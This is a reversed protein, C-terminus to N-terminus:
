KIIWKYDLGVGKRHKNVITMGRKVTIGISFDNVLCNGNKFLFHESFRMGPEESFVEIECDRSQKALTTGKFLKPHSRKLKGYYGGKSVMCEEVSWACDGYIDQTFTGDKNKVLDSETASFVRFFHEHPVEGTDYNYNAKLCDVVRQIAEKSGRIKLEYDCLNPM